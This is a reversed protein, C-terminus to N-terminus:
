MAVLLALLAAAEQVGPLHPELTLDQEVAVEVMTNLLAQAGIM